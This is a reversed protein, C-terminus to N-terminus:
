SLGIENNVEDTRSVMNILVVVANTAIASACDAKVHIKIM